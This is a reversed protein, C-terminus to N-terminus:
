KLIFIGLHQGGLGGDKRNKWNIRLAKLIHFM